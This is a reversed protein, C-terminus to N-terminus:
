ASSPMRSRTRDRPSPSTYLLCTPSQANFTVGTAGAALELGTFSIPADTTELTVGDNMTLTGLNLWPTDAAQLTSSATVTVNYSTMDDAVTVGAMGAVEEQTLARDYAYVEDILGKYFYSASGARFIAGISTTSLAMTGRTYNFNGGDPVGDVYLTATGNADVWALHHWADDFVTANSQPHNVTPGDQPRIYLDFKGATDTGLNLLPYSTTTSGESFIRKDPQPWGKVWMAISYANDIGNNYIPLRDDQAITVYDDAGDFSLANGIKGPVRVPLGDPGILTGDNTGPAASNIATDGSEEEFKWIGVAGAPGPEATFRVIPTVALTGGALEFTGVAADLGDAQIKLTGAGQKTLTGGTGTWSAVDLTSDVLTGTVSITADGALVVSSISGNRASFGADAGLSLSTGAAFSADRQVTLTRGADVRVAVATGGGDVTLGEAQRDQAVTVTNANIVAYAPTAVDPFWDVSAGDKDLWHTTGWSGDGMGDWYLFDYPLAADLQVNDYIASTTAGKIRFGIDRGLSAAYNADATFDFSITTWTGDGAANGSASRLLTSGAPTNRVDDRAAGDAFAILQVNYPTGANLGDDRVVDFSVTYTVGEELVGIVGEATTLGSNTYRFAYAQDNGAPATFDGGDKNVLGHYNSKHGQAAKVWNGNDPATGQAYGEVVPSEFSESFIVAAQAPGALALMAMTLAALIGQLTRCRM